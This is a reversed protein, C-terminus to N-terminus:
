RFMAPSELVFRTAAVEVEETIGYFRTDLEDFVSDDRKYIKSLQEQRRSRDASPKSSGFKAIAENLVASHEKLGMAQFGALADQWNDGSSNVFYQALGGNNVEANCTFVASYFRQQETLSGNGSKEEADWIRQEFGELGSSSLLGAAAGQAVIGEPHNMRSRLFDRDEEQKQQGLLRLAEGLAYTTPYEMELAELSAVLPRISDHPVSIKEDALVKLVHYIVTSEAAFFEPSLFHGTAKDSDLRYLIRAAKDANRETRLMELVDPFLAVRVDDALGQRDLAYELGMLAFSRVYEDEDSFAKRVLPTIASAGTKAIVFAADKRIEESPDNLFPQLADVAGPEPSDGLLDCARNFPAEPLLDKGTPKVLQAYLSPNRLLVLVTPHTREGLAGLIRAEDWAERSSTAKLVYKETASAVKQDDWGKAAEAASDVEARIRDAGEWYDPNKVVDKFGWGSRNRSRAVSFIVAIAAAIM